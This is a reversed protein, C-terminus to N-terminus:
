AADRKTTMGVVADINEAVKPWDFGLFRPGHTEIAMRLAFTQAALLEVFQTVSFEWTDEHAVDHLAISVGGPEDANWWLQTEILPLVIPDEPDLPTHAVSASVRRGVRGMHDDNCDGDRTCWTPHVEAPKPALHGLVAAIDRQQQPSAARIMATQEPTIRDEQQPDNEHVTTM